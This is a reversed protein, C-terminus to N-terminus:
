RELLALLLSVAAPSHCSRPIPQKQSNPRPDENEEDSSVFFHGIGGNDAELEEVFSGIALVTIPSHSPM